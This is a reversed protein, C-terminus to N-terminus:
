VRQDQLDSTFKDAMTNHEEKQGIGLGRNNRSISIRFNKFRQSNQNRRRRHSTASSNTLQSDTRLEFHWKKQHEIYSYRRVQLTEINDEYAAIKLKQVEHQPRSPLPLRRRESNSSANLRLTETHTPTKKTIHWIPTPEVSLMELSQFEIASVRFLPRAPSLSM